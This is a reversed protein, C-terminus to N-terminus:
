SAEELYEDPVDIVTKSDANHSFNDKGGPKNGSKAEKEKLWRWANISLEKDVHNRWTMLWDRKKIRDTKKGNINWDLFTNSIYDWYTKTAPLRKELLKERAIDKFKPDEIWEKQFFCPNEFHFRAEKKEIDSLSAEKNTEKTTTEKTTDKEQTDVDKVAGQLDGKSGQLDSQGAESSAIRGNNVEDILTKSFSYINYSQGGGKSFSESKTIIKKTILSKIIKIATPKSVKLAKMFQSLAIGDESKGWGITKRAIFLVAALEHANLEGSDILSDPVSTYSM